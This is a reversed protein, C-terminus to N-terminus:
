LRPLSVATDGATGVQSRAPLAASFRLYDEASLDEARRSLDIGAVSAAAEVSRETYGLAALGSLSNRLMKRRQQFAAEVVSIFEAFGEPRPEARLRIVASEVRPPPYFCTPKVRFLFETKARAQALVSLIGYRRGGPPSAIREAMEKQVMCVALRPRPDDSLLRFFITGAAAYPLNAVLKARDSFLGPLDMRLVDGPVVRLNPLDRALDQLIGVLGRDWEVATVRRVRRCLEASLTGLGAGIELVDDDPGLDAAALIKNLINADILFNQGRRRHPALGRERLLAAV